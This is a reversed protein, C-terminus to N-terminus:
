IKSTNKCTGPQINEYKITVWNDRDPRSQEHYFGLAHIAEHAASAARFCTSKPDM